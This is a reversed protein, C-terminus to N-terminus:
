WIYLSTLKTRYLIIVQILTHIFLFSKCFRTTLLVPFVPSRLDVEFRSDLLPVPIYPSPRPVRFVRLSPFKSVRLISSEPVRLSSSVSVRHCPSEPSPVRSEPSPVRFESSSVRSEPVRPSPSEPVRPSPSEPVRPSPSTPSPSTPSLSTSHSSEPFHFEHVRPLPVRPGPFARPSPSTIFSCCRNKRQIRLTYNETTELFNKYVPFSTLLLRHNEANRNQGSM